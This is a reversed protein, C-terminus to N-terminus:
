YLERQYVSKRSEPQYVGFTARASPDRDYTVVGACSGSTGNQARLWALSAGTSSPHNSLCSQDTTSTGLNFAFDVSGTYGGGPASLTLTGNGSVLTVASPTTSWAATSAGKNDVYNSRAVSAAPISTCSDQSNVVWAKGNWYQTQVPVSLSAKESGFANSVKIRGSRVSLSGDTGSSSSVADSDTARITVATASTLKNTFTFLPTLSINAEGATFQSATFSGNSLSGSSASVASLAGSRAYYYPATGSSGDYNVTTNGFANRATIKATFPQGSYTFSGCGQTLSVDFHHPVFPGIAGTSGTSGSVSTGSGLYSGSVLTASLDGTGVETWKLDSLTVAGSTFSGSALATSGSAGSGTGTLTGSSAGSGTPRYKAWAVRVYDSVAPTEKGFNPTAVGSNNKATLTTSFASGAVPSATWGSFVLSAPSAIFTDTGTMSLGADTGSGTYTATMGVQGVDAYQVTTTAVGSADFSLSVSRGTGDCAASTSNSVNLASGGVRVPLTGSSPNSYTCKFTVNKSVSAFAPTCATANNSSQVASVTVSQSVDSLHNPVNFLLGSSALSITCSGGNAPTAGNMGCYVSPSATPTSSLSSLTATTLSGVTTAHVSVTTSSSGNPISFSAGSPYNVTMGSGSVALTGTLGTSFPTSCSADACAQVTYTRPTCTLGNSASINVHHLPVIVTMNCSNGSAATTGIGCFVKPTNTPTPSYTPLSMTATGASTPTVTVDVYNTPGAPISWASTYSATVGSVSITGSAGTVYPTACTADGCAKIRYTTASNSSVSSAATTMELHHPAVLGDIYSINDVYWDQSTDTSLLGCGGCNYLKFQMSSVKVGSDPTYQVYIPYWTIADGLLWGFLFNLVSTLWNPDDVYMGVCQSNSSSTCNKLVKTSGDSLTLTLIQSNESNFQARWMVGVYPTPQAFNVTVTTANNTTGSSIKMASGSFGSESVSGTYSIAGGSTLFGGSGTASSYTLRSATQESALTRTSFDITYLNAGPSPPSYVGSTFIYYGALARGMGVLVCLLVLAVKFFSSLTRSHHM